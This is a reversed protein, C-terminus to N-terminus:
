KIKVLAIDNSFRKGVNWRDHVTVSDVEFNQEESDVKASFFTLRTSLYIFEWILKGSILQLVLVFCLGDLFKWSARLIECLMFIQYPDLTEQPCLPDM